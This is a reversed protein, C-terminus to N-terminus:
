VNEKGIFKGTEPYQKRSLREVEKELKATLTYLISNEALTIREKCAFLEKQQTLGANRTELASKEARLKDNKTRLESAIGNSSSLLVSLAIIAIIAILLLVALIATAM